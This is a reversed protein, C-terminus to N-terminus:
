PLRANMWGFYLLFWPTLPKSGLKLGQSCEAWVTLWRVSQWLQHAQWAIQAALRLNARRCRPGATACVVLQDCVFELVGLPITGCDDLLPLLFPQNQPKMWPGICELVHELFWTFMHSAICFLLRWQAMVVNYLDWVIGYIDSPNWIIRITPHKFGWIHSWNYVILWWKESRKNKVRDTWPKFGYIGYWPKWFDHYGWSMWTPLCNLPEAWGTLSIWIHQQRLTYFGM